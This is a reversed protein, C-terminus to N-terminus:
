NEPHYLRYIDLSEKKLKAILSEPSVLLCNSGLSLIERIFWYTNYVRRTVRKVPPKTNIIKASAKYPKM